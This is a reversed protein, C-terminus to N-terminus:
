DDRDRLGPPETMEVFEAGAPSRWEYGTELLDALEDAVLRADRRDAVWVAVIPSVDNSRAEIWRRSTFLSRLLAVPLAVLAILAPVVFWVIVAWAWTFPVLFWDFTGDDVHPDYHSDRWKPARFRSASITWVRGDPSRVVHKAM